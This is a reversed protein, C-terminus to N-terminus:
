TQGRGGLVVILWLFPTPPPPLSSLLSFSLLPQKLFVASATTAGAFLVLPLSSLLLIVEGQGRSTITKKPMMTTGGRQRIAFFVFVVYSGLIPTCPYNRTTHSGVSAYPDATIAATMDQGVANIPNIDVGLPWSSLPAISLLSLQQSWPFLRSPYPPYTSFIHYRLIVWTCINLDM